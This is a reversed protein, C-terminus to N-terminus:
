HQINLGYKAVLSSLQDYPIKIGKIENWDPDLCFASVGTFNAERIDSKEFHADQLHSGEFSVGQAKIQTFEVSELNCFHFACNQLNMQYFSAHHLQCHEFHISLGFPNADEFHLGMLKCKQFIVGNFLTAMIKCNSLNCDEFTCDLFKSNSLDIGALDIGVFRCSEYASKEKVDAKDTLEINYFDNIM